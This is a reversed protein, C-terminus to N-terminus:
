SAVKKPAAKEKTSAKEPKRPQVAYAEIILKRALALSVKGYGEDGWEPGWSNRFLFAAGGDYRKSRLPGIFRIKFADSHTWLAESYLEESDVPRNLGAGRATLEVTVVQGIKKAAELPTLPQDPTQSQSSGAWLAVM